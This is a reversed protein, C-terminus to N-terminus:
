ARHPGGSENIRGLAVNQFGREVDRGTHSLVNEIGIKSPYISGCVYALVYAASGVTGFVHSFGSSLEWPRVQITIPTRAHSAVMRAAFPM